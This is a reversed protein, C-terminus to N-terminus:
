ATKGQYKMLSKLCYNMFIDASGTGLPPQRRLLVHSQRGFDQALSKGQPRPGRCLEAVPKQRVTKPGSVAGSKTRKPDTEARRAAANRRKSAAANQRRKRAQGPGACQEQPRPLHGQWLMAQQGYWARWISLTPPLSPTLGSLEATGNCASLAGQAWQCPVASKGLSAGCYIYMHDPPFWRCQAM